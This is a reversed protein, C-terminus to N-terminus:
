RVSGAERMMRLIMEDFPVSTPAITCGFGNGTCYKKVSEIFEAFKQQYRRLVSESITVDRAVGTEVDVLQMDGRFRPAAELADHIQIVNPEFQRYRLTDMPKQFGTPDFYLIDPIVQVNIADTVQIPCGRITILCISRSCPNGATRLCDSGGIKIYDQRSFPLPFINVM